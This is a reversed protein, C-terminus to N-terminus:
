VEYDTKDEINSCECNVYVRYVICLSNSIFLQLVIVHLNTHTGIQLSKDEDNSVKIDEV